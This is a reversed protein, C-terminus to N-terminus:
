LHADETATAEAAEAPMPVRKVRPAPKPKLVAMLAEVDRLVAEDAVRPRAARLTEYAHLGDGADAVVTLVRVAFGGLRSDELWPAVADVAAPGHAAIPDRLEIRSMPDAAQARKLLADLSPAAPTM